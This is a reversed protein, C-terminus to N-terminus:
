TNSEHNGQLILSIRKEGQLQDLTIWKTALILQFTYVLIKDITFTQLGVLESIKAFRYELIAKHLALPDGQYKEFLTKLEEFGQPPEYSKADKQAIIEQIFPDFPDEFQFEQLFDRKLQKARLATLILRIKREKNFFERLFPTQNKSEHHFFQVYLKSFYKNKQELSDNEEAFDLVYNPLGQRTLLAEEIIHIDLESVFDTAQGSWYLRLNELDFYFRLRNVKELDNPTLNQKLLQFFDEFTIEPVQGIQIDPLLTAVFYYQNM